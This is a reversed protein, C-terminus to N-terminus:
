IHYRKPIHHLQTAGFYENLVTFLFAVMCSSIKEWTLWFATLKQLARCTHILLSVASLAHTISLLLNLDIYISCFIFHDLVILSMWNKVDIQFSIQISLWYGYQAVLDHSQSILELFQDLSLALCERSACVCIWSRLPRTSRETSGDMQWEMQGEM